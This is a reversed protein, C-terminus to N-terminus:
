GPKKHRWSSLNRVDATTCVAQIFRWEEKTATKSWVHALECERLRTVHGAWAYQKAALKVVLEQLGVREFIRRALKNQRRRFAVWGEDERKSLGLM